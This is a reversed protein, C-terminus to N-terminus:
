AVQVADTITGIEIDVLGNQVETTDEMGDVTIVKAEVLKEIVDVTIVAKQQVSEDIM